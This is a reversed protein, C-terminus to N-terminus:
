RVPVVRVVEHVHVGAAVRVVVVPRVVPIAHGESEALIMALCLLGHSSILAIASPPIFWRHPLM